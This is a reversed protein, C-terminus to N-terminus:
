QCGVVTEKAEGSPGIGRVKRVFNCLAGVLPVQEARKANTDLLASNAVVFAAVQARSIAVNFRNANFLFGIGRPALDGSSSAMSYIVAPAQRGQFLDVTGVQVDELGVKGLEGRIAGVQANFPTIVMVDDATLVRPTGGEIFTRGILDLALRAVEGAEEFSRAKNNAHDCPVWYTGSPVGNISRLVAEPAVRLRGEYFNDSVFSCVPAPMRRTGDLFIGLEPDITKDGGLYHALASVAVGDPHSGQMPQDLQQPDGLLVLSSTARAAVVTNALSFQGAEDVVLVDFADVLEPRAFFWATGGVVDYDGDLFATAGDAAEFQDVGAPTEAPDGGVKLVRVGWRGDDVVSKLMYEVVRHSTSVVGVTLGDDVLARIMHAGTYTKGTGPPGQVALCSNDLARAARVVADAASEDPERLEFGHRLRPPKRLLLDRIVPKHDGALWADGVALLADELTSTTMPQPSILHTPLPRDVTQGRKIQLTGEVADVAHVNVQAHRGDAPTYDAMAKKAKLKHPQEPDFSFEHILSRAEPGVIRHDHLGAVAESDAWLEEPSMTQQAFHKWWQPKQEREHFEVLNGLLWRAHSAPDDPQHDATLAERLQAARTRRQATQDPLTVNVVTPRDITAGAAIASSRQVELWDRLQRTSICDDRNYDHLNDLITDNRSERDPSSEIWAEYQVVSEMGSQVETDRKDRYFAELDKISLREAAIRVASRAVAYLDVFVQNRLLHDVADVRSAYRSALRKLVSTEYPAYHYVHMGPDREFADTFHDVAREFAAREEVEDHAWVATFEDNADSYGWLYELGASNHGRHPDGELDFFLDGPSPEPLLHFGGQPHLDPDILEFAPEENRHQIRAQARIRDWTSDQMTPPKQDGSAAALEAGTEIGVSRLSKIQPRGVRAVLSLHDDARRQADCRPSWRCVACHDVPEPYTIPQSEMAALLRERARRHYGELLHTDFSAIENDGLVIHVRKPASGQTATLHHAYDALQVLASVKATRALKTDFPEYHWMGADAEFVETRILFDAHGRWTGDFFTAQFIVDAGSRMAEITESHRLPLDRHGTTDAIEVISRGEARLMELYRLEHEDGLRQILQVEEGVEATRDIEGLASLRKLQTLHECALHAVLDSPSYVFQNDVFQM